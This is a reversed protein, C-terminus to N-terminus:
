AKRFFSFLLPLKTIKLMILKGKLMDQYKMEKISDPEVPHPRLDTSGDKGSQSALGILHYALKKHNRTGSAFLATVLVSVGSPHSQLAKFLIKVRETRLNKKMVSCYDDVTLVGFSNLHSLLEHLDIHFYVSDMQSEIDEFTTHVEIEHQTVSPPDGNLIEILQFANPFAERDLQSLCDVLCQLPTVSVPSATESNPTCTLLFFLLLNVKEEHSIGSSLLKDCQDVQIFSKKFLNLALATLCRTEKLHTNIERHYRLLLEPASM